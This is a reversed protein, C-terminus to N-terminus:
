SIPAALAVRSVTVVCLARIVSPHQACGGPSNAARRVGGSSLRQDDTVETFSCLHDNPHHANAAAVRLEQSYNAQYRPTPKENM